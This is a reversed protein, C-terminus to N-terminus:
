AGLGDLVENLKDLNAGICYEVVEGGQIVIFTPLSKIGYESALENEKDTDVKFFSANRDQAMKEVQPMIGKCPGCWDAYFDLVVVRKLDDSFVHQDHTETTINKLSM